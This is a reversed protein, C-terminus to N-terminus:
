ACSTYLLCFLVVVIFFGNELNKLFGTCFAGGTCFLSSVFGAVTVPMSGPLTETGSSEAPIKPAILPNVRDRICMQVLYSINFPLM